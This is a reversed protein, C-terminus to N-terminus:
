FSWALGPGVPPRVAAIPNRRISRIRNAAQQGGDGRPPPGDVIFLIASAAATIGAAILFGKAMRDDQKGTRVDDEFQSAHVAYEQPMGTDPDRFILLRNADGAKDASSAGYFAAVGLLLTTVGVGAWATVNLRSRSTGDEVLPVLDQRSDDRAQTTPLTLTAGPTTTAAPSPSQSGGPPSARAASPAEGSPAAVRAGSTKSERAPNPIEAPIEVEVPPKNQSPAALRQVRAEIDPRDAADPSERLYQEYTRAAEAPTGAKEEAEGIRILFAPDHSVAYGAKWAREAGRADGAEFLRLGEAFAKQEEPSPPQQSPTAMTLLVVLAQLGPMSM